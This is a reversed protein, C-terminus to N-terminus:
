KLQAVEMVDLKKWTVSGTKHQLLENWCFGNPLNILHLHIIYGRDNGIIEALSPRTSARLHFVEALEQM